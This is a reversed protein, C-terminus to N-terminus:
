GGDYHPAAPYAELTPGLAERLPGLWAEYPRWQDLGERNIPRRVQESSATRVARQTEYFRLCAPEFPINCYDLVRRVEAETDTVLTEYIVRHIRGPLVRDFHAMLEVYDRYYHGIDTLDYTFNQGRAFHQKYGSWCCALPHRRADIIKANPLALHILGVHAWNNPMKDIFLPAGTKRQIRTQELYQEGLARVRAADLEALVEPYRSDESASEQGGLTRAIVGIDPLEMTGEILSHSALIQEILTSGSRPLGVVFIPDAAQCGWGTRAAFFEPTFLAKSRAVHRSTDEASYKSVSRRLRNGESYHQFSDSYRDEDERAKGLAFHFHLRDDKSLDDRELAREMAAIEETNFRFTKLNALSWYAEGLRPELAIAKRYATIAEPQRGATKLAHGFSMWAKPQKPYESLLREYVALARDFEGIRGLIAALLNRYGPNRPELKLLEEIAALAATSKERRHWVLALNHRAAHFGPALEVCRTLLAEAAGYRGVRVAIEALMRMAVVDTPHEKLHERLLTEAVPVQNDGMAAAAKMLRPDRVSTRVHRLRAIDAGEADGLAELHDALERWADSLDPKLELARRLEKVAEDGRGLAGLTAGLEYHASAWEPRETVLPELVALSREAAGLRRSSAGLVLRALPQDPAVKLIEQAQEAALAPQAGMLRVAHELAVQLTGVPESGESM